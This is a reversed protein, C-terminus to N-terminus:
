TRFRAGMLRGMTQDYPKTLQANIMPNHSQMDLPKSRVFVGNPIGCKPFSMM